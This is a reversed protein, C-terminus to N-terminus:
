AWLPTILDFITHKGDMSEVTDPLDLSVTFARIPSCLHQDSGERNEYARFACEGM